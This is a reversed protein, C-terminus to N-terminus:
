ELGYERIKNQLTRRGIGLEEAARTRNGQWRQLSAVIARREIAALTEPPQEPAAAAPGAAAPLDIDRAELSAGEAFIMARELVNELERVNGPFPHALLRELAGDGFAPIPRGLKRALRQLLVGAIEPIDERRQRLPPVEIRVVNLRYFLDERFVGQAVRAELDRNTAAIIRADIPIARTGGLHTLRREQLVRLLKVQLSPPMDGIEDLFLTGSGAMELLGPKRAEAGTFAGKEFGFLESELLTEPVGGINVAMFPEGARPSLAHIARAVVEKGTGSEGTILVTTPAPAVRSAIERVRRIAASSGGLGIDGPEGEQAQLVRDRLGQTEVVKKLRLVMEDPDFPKVLYDAAGLKIAEVAERVEAFASIMIVPVRPGEEHLWRLLELGGMGPMRLDVIAAAFVEELLLRQAALGNEATVAEISELALYRAVAERISKEDDVVLVKM